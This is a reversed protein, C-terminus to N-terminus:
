FITNSYIQIFLVTSFFCKEHTFYFYVLRETISIWKRPWINATNLLVAMINHVHERAVGISFYCIQIPKGFLIRYLSSYYLNSDSSSLPLNITYLTRCRMSPCYARPHINSCGGGYKIESIHLVLQPWKVRKTGCFTQSSLKNAGGSSIDANHHINIFGRQKWPGGM